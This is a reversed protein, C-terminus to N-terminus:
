LREYDLSVTYNDDFLEDVPVGWSDFFEGYEMITNGLHFNAHEERLDFLLFNYLIDIDMPYMKDKGTLHVILNPLIM